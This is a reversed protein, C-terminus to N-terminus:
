RRKTEADLKGTLTEVQKMLTKLKPDTVDGPKPETPDTPKPDPDPPKIGAIQKEFRSLGGNLAKNVDAMIETKFKAPDFAQEGGGGGQAPDADMLPGPVNGFRM